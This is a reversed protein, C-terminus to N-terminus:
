YRLKYSFTEKITWKPSSCFQINLRSLLKEQKSPKTIEMSCELKGKLGIKHKEKKCALVRRIHISAKLQNGCMPRGM